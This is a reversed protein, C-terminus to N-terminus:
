PRMSYKLAMAMAASTRAAPAPDVGGDTRYVDFDVAREVGGRDMPEGVGHLAGDEVGEVDEERDADVGDIGGAAGVAVGDLGGRLAEGADLGDVADEEVVLAGGDGEVDEDVEGDTVAGGQAGGDEGVQGRAERVAGDVDVEICVISILAVRSNGHCPLPPVIM